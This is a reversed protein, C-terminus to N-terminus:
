SSDINVASVVDADKDYAIFIAREEPAEDIATCVAKTITAEVDVVRQMARVGQSDVLIKCRELCGEVLEPGYTIWHYHHPQVMRSLGKGNQWSMIRKDLCQMMVLGKERPTFPSFAALHSIRGKLPNGFPLAQLQQTPTAALNVRCNTTLVFIIDSCNIFNTQTMSTSASKKDVWKGAFFVLM